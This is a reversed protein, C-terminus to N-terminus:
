SYFSNIGYRLFYWLSAVRERWQSARDWKTLPNPKPEFAAAFTRQPQRQRFAALSRPIHFWNSVLVVHNAGIESLLPGTFRANEETSTAANEHYLLAGPLGADLLEGRITGGDGTVIVPVEPFRRHWRMAERSRAENGGGLVVIAEPTWSIAEREPDPWNGWQIWSVLALIICLGTAALSLIRKNRQWMASFRDLLVCAM